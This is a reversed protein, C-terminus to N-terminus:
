FASDVIKKKIAIVGKAIAFLPPLGLEMSLKGQNSDFQWHSSM